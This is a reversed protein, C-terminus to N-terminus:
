KIGMNELSKQLGLYAARIKNQSADSDILRKIEKAQPHYVHKYIHELKALRESEKPTIEEGKKKKRLDDLDGFLIEMQRAPKEPSRVLISGLFPLDSLEKMGGLFRFSNIQGGTYNNLLYETQVPSLPIGIADLGASLAKSIAMTQPRVRQHVPLYKMGESEIPRGQYDRNTAVDLVPGVPMPIVSPFSALVRNVLAKGRRGNDNDKSVLSEMAAIFTGGFITGMEFPMPLRYVTDGIEFFFNAYKYEHPLNKYWQKERNLAWMALAPITIYTIGRVAFGSPDEQALRALKDLSQAAANFFPVAQNIQRGALGGRTFNTTVDQADNVAQIWADTESWDEKTARYHAYMRELESIRPGAEGVSLIERMTDIPHLIVKVAKGKPLNELLAADYVAMTAARDYGVQGSMKGGMGEFRSAMDGPKSTFQRYVGVAPDWIRANPAKSAVAYSLADRFPNKILAFAPNLEVAGMRILRVFPATFKTFANLKPADLEQLAAFLKADLEYFERKGDRWVSIVNDKGKYVQSNSFITAVGELDEAEVPRVKGDERVHAGIGEKRLTDVLTNLSLEKAEIPPPIKSVWKGAGKVGALNGILTAITSKQAIGVVNAMEEIMSEIPNYIPRGSGKIRKIGKNASSLSGSGANHIENVFVRKLRLYVPNLDRMLQAQEASLNGAEILWDVGTNSWATLGDSVKQWVPNDYKQFVFQVDALDFGADIGRKALELARRSLAYTIFKQVKAEGGIANPFLDGWSTEIPKLVEVLSPGVVEGKWNVAGKMVMEYAVGRAKQAFYTFRAHPSQSPRLTKGTAKAIGQEMRKLADGSDIFNDYFWEFATDAKERLSTKSLEGTFDVQARMRGEAGMERWTNYLDQLETLDRKLTENKDLFDSFAKFFAPAEKAANGTTIWHRMFEALGEHRRRKSQDYDLDLLEKTATQYDVGSDKIAKELWRRGQTKRLSWDMAHGGEHSMVELDGWRKMRVLHQSPYYMGLAKWRHTSKTRVPVGFASEIKKTFAIKNVRDTTQAEMEMKVGFSQPTSNPLTGGGSRAKPGEVPKAFSEVPIDYAATDEMLPLPQNTGGLEALDDAMVRIPGNGFDVLLTEGVYDVGMLKGQTQAPLAEPIGVKPAAPLDRSLTVTDGKKVADLRSDFEAEYAAPAGDKAKKKVIKPKAQIDDRGVVEHDTFQLPGEASGGQSIFVKDGDMVNVTEQIFAHNAAFMASDDTKKFPMVVAGEIRKATAIEKITVPVKIMKPSPGGVSIEIDSGKKKFHIAADHGAEKVYPEIEKLASLLAARDFEMHRSVQPWVQAYNPFQGGNQRMSVWGDDGDFSIVTSIESGEDYPVHHIKVTEGTLSRMANVAIKKSAIGYYGPKLKGKIKTRIMRRGDTAIVSIGSEESHIMVQNLVHRTADDSAFVMAKSVADVLDERNVEGALEKPKTSWVAPFDEGVKLNPYPVADKGIFKYMGDAIDTKKAISIDLDSSYAMGEKVAFGQLAPLNTKRPITNRMTTLTDTPKPSAKLKTAKAKPKEIVTKSVKPSEATAGIEVTEVRPTQAPSQAPKVYAMYGNGSRELLVQTGPGYKMAMQDHITRLGSLGLAQDSKWGEAPTTKYSLETAPRVLVSKHVIDAGEEVFDAPIPSGAKYVVVKEPNEYQLMRIEGDVSVLSGVSGIDSSRYSGDRNPIEGIDLVGLSYWEPSRHEKGTSFNHEKMHPGSVSLVKYTRPFTSGVGVSVIDGPAVLDPVKPQGKPTQRMIWGDSDVTNPHPGPKLDNLIEQPYRQWLLMPFKESGGETMPQFGLKEYWSKLAKTDLRKVGGAVKPSTTMEMPRMRLVVGVEDALRLIEKMASSAHGGGRNTSEISDIYVIGPQEGEGRYSKSLGDNSLIDRTIVVRVGEPTKFDNAKGFLKKVEGFFMDVGGDDVPKIEKTPAKAVSKAAPRIMTDKTTFDKNKGANKVFGFRKYFNELRAVSSAGFDKSPTLTIRKGNSDAYAILDNMFETGVGKSRNDKPVIVQSLQIDGTPGSEYVSNKVGQDEWHSSLDKLPDAKTGTIEQIKNIIDGAMENASKEKPADSGSVIEPPKPAAELIRNKIAEIREPALGSVSPDAALFSAARQPDKAIEQSLVFSANYHADSGLPFREHEGRYIKGIEEWDNAPAPNPHELTPILTNGPQSEPAPSVTKLETPPPADGRPPVLDDKFKPAPAIPDPFAETPADKLGRKALESKFLSESMRIGDALSMRGEAVALQVDYPVLGTEQPVGLGKKVRYMATNLETQIKIRVAPLLKGVAVASEAALEAAKGLVPGAVAGVGTAVLVDKGDVQGTDAMQGLTSFIANGIGGEVAYRGYKGVKAAAVLGVPAMAPEMAVFLPASGILEGAIAGIKEGDKMAYGPKVAEAGRELAESANDGEIMRQATVGAGRMGRGPLTAAEGVVKSAAHIAPLADKGIQQVVPDMVESGADRAGARAEEMTPGAPQIQSYDLDIKHGNTASDQIGALYDAPLGRGLAESIAARDVGEPLSAFDIEVSDGSKRSEEIQSLYDDQTAM